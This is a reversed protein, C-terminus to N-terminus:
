KPASEDASTQRRARIQAYNKSFNKKLVGLVDFGIFHLVAVLAVIVVAIVFITHM